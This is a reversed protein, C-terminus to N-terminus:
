RLTWDTRLEAPVGLYREIAEAAAVTGVCVEACYGGMRLYSIWQKQEALLAGGVDKLEIYLGHFGGRAVPLCLDPVGRKVGEAKMKGGQGRQGGAGANPIAYLLALEPLRPTLREAWDILAAQETHESM